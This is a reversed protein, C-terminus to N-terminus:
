NRAFKSSMKQVKHHSHYLNQRGWTHTVPGFTWRDPQGFHPVKERFPATKWDFIPTPDHTPGAIGVFELGQMLQSNTVKVDTAGHDRFGLAKFPYTGDAPNLDSRCSIANEASYPPNCDCRSLPDKTYNNSRMLTIMSDMDVVKSHDRAFIQARPTKDYSFWDGYKQVMSDTNSYKIIQPYYPQNYGPWYTSKMLHATMDSHVIHRPMQEIVHIIGHDPQLERGPKFKKYDVIVWQNNYTGSNYKGFTEAWQTGSSATRHAVEARIWTLVANPTILDLSSENYNGITTELIALKASTLVFDDTSTISAPYSSFSYASGPDGTKFTYKKAIRLMSSYSTWTVHSFLIDKNNPLLKVLASCHGPGSYVNKPNEPKKFKMALDELDGALQIMYIPHIVLQELTMGGNVKNEYGHILGFLQNLTLNVQQWYGHEPNQQVQDTMWKLNEILFEGLEDCFHKAGDCFDDVTNVIHLDILDRTVRGEVFGAAYGQVYHPLKEGIVKVELHAWGTQNIENKLSATALRKECIINAEPTGTKHYSFGNWNECITYERHHKCRVSVFM